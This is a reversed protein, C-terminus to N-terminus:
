MTGCAFLWVIDSSHSNNDERDKFFGKETKCERITVTKLNVTVDTIFVQDAVPNRSLWYESGPSTLVPVEEGVNNNDHGNVTLQKVDGNKEVRLGNETHEPKPEAKKPPEVPPRKDDTRSAVPKPSAPEKTSSHPLTADVPSRSKDTASRPTTATLVTPSSASPIASSAAEEEPKQRGNARATNPKQFQTKKDM